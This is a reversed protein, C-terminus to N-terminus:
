SWGLGPWTLVRTLSVQQLIRDLLKYLTNTKMIKLGCNLCASLWKSLNQVLRNWKCPVGLLATVLGFRCAWEREAYVFGPFLAGHPYQMAMTHCLWLGPSSCHGTDKPCNRQRMEPIPTHLASTPASCFSYLIGKLIVISFIVQNFNLAPNFAKNSLVICYIYKIEKGKREKWFCGRQQWKGLGITKKNQTM